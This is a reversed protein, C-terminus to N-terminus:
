AAAATEDGVINAMQILAYRTADSRSSGYGHQALYDQLAAVAANTRADINAVLRTTTQSTNM